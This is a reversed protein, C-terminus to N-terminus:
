VSHLNSMKLQDKLTTIIINSSIYQEMVAVFVTETRKVVVITVRVSMTLGSGVEVWTPM